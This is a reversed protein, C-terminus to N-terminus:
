SNHAIFQCSKKFYPSNFNVQRKSDKSFEISKKSFQYHKIKESYTLNNTTYSVVRSIKPSVPTSNPSSGSIVSVSNDTEIGQKISTTRFVYDINPSVINTNPSSGANDSTNNNANLALNGFSAVINSAVKPSIVGNNPFSGM